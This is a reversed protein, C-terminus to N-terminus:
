LPRGAPITGPASPKPPGTPKIPFYVGFDDGKEPNSKGVDAYQGGNDVKDLGTSYLTYYPGFKRYQLTGGFAPDPRSPLTEPYGNPHAIAIEIAWRAFERFVLPKRYAIDAQGYSPALTRVLGDSVTLYARDAVLAMKEVAQRRDPETKYISEYELYRQIVKTLISRNVASKPLGGRVLPKSEAEEVSDMAGIDYMRLMEAGSYNRLMSLAGYFELHLTSGLPTVPIEAEILPLLKKLSAPRGRMEHAVNGVARYFISQCSVNVLAGIYPLDESLQLAANRALELSRAAGEDDGHRARHVADYALANTVSKYYSYEPFQLNYSQDYDRKADFQTKAAVVKARRILEAVNPDLERKGLLWYDTVERTDKPLPNQKNLFLQKLPIYGNNSDPVGHVALESAEFPYGAAKAQAVLAELNSDGDLVDVFRKSMQLLAAVFLLPVAFVVILKFNLPQQSMDTRAKPNM